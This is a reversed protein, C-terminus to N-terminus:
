PSETEQMMQESDTDLNTEKVVNGHGDLVLFTIM